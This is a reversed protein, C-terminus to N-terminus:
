TCYTLPKKCTKSESLKSYGPTYEELCTGHEDHTICLIGFAHRVGALMSHTKDKCLQSSTDSSSGRSAWTFLCSPERADLEAVEKFFPGIESVLHGVEVVLHGVEFILHGVEVVLHGVELRSHSIKFSGGQLIRSCRGGVIM